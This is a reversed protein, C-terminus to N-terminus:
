AEGFKTAKAPPETIDAISEYLSQFGRSVNNAEFKGPNRTSTVIDAAVTEGKELHEGGCQSNHVYARTGEEFMIFGFGKENWDTVTGQCQIAKVEGGPAFGGGMQGMQGMQGM